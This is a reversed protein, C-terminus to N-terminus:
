SWFSKKKKVIQVDPALWISKGLKICSELSFLRKHTNSQNYWKMWREWLVMKYWLSESLNYLNNWEIVHRTKHM